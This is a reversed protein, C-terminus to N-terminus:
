FIYQKRPQGHIQTFSARQTQKHANLPVVVASKVTQQKRQTQQDYLHNLHAKLQSESTQTSVM